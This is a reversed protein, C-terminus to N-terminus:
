ATEYLNRLYELSFRPFLHGASAFKAEEDICTGFLNHDVVRTLALKKTM